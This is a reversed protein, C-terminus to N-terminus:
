KPLGEAKMVEQVAPRAAIRGRYAVPDPYGALDVGVHQGWNSVTFLYADAVSFQDGMLFKKGALRGDVWRFREHLMTPFVGKADESIVPNFLPSFTKHLETTIFILWEQLRYRAMTGNAPALRKDPVQDAIYQIIVPGETLRQGDDLELLPRLGESQHRLLRHRGAAQLDQHQGDGARLGPRGERLVIHPFFSCAGPSYYLKM